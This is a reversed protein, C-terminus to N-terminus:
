EPESVRPRKQQTTTEVSPASSEQVRTAPETGSSDPVRPEVHEPGGSAASRLGTGHQAEAATGSRRRNTKGFLHELAARDRLQGKPAGPAPLVVTLRSALLNPM